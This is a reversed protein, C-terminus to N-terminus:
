YHLILPKWLGLHVRNPCLGEMALIFRLKLGMMDKGQSNLFIKSRSKGNAIRMSPVLMGPEFLFSTM